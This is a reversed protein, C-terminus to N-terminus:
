AKDNPSSRYVIVSAAKEFLNRIESSLEQNAFITSLSPGNIMIAFESFDESKDKTSSISSSRDSSLILDKSSMLNNKSENLRTSSVNTLM